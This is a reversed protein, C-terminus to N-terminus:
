KRHLADLRAISVLGVIQLLTDFTRGQKPVLRELPLPNSRTGTRQQQFSGQTSLLQSPHAYAQACPLNLERHSACPQGALPAPSTYQARKELLDVLVLPRGVLSPNYPMEPVQNCICRLLNADKVCQGM